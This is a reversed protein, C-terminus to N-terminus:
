SRELLELMLCYAWTLPRLGNHRHSVDCATCGFSAPLLLLLLLLPPPLLLLLLLLV